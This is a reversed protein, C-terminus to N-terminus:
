RSSTKRTITTATSPSSARGTATPMTASGDEVARIGRTPKPQVCRVPLANHNEANDSPRVVNGYFQLRYGLPGIDKYRTSTWYVGETGQNCVIGWPDRRGVAPLFMTWDAPHFATDDGARMGAPIGLGADDARFMTAHAGLVGVNPTHTPAAGFTGANWSGASTIDDTAGGVPMRWGGNHKDGFYYMCPDGKAIEPNHYSPDSVSRGGSSWDSPESVPISNWDGGIAAQADALSMWESPVALIDDPELSPMVSDSGDSSIAVLSGFQFFAVYVTEDELGGFTEDAFAKIGPNSAYEKSGKLTLTNTGKIYGIVGPAALSLAGQTVNFPMEIRKAAITWAHLRSTTLSGSRPATITLTYADGVPDSLTYDIKNSSFKKKTGGVIEADGGGVNMTFDPVNTKITVIVTEGMADLFVVRQSVGLYYSGDVMVYEVESEDMDVVRATMNNVADSEYAELVTSYGKGTVASINFRYLHNRLVNMLDGDNAFDLRYYTTEGSGDYEGGVVLAMRNKHQTPPPTGMMLIDSEPVYISQTTYLNNSVTYELARAEADTTAPFKTPSAPISPKTVSAGSRNATVPVVLYEKNAKVVHVSTLSFPIAVGDADKGDWTYAPDESADYNPKDGLGVDIRAVARMLTVDPKASLDVTIPGTEGWMPITEGSAGPYMVGSIADFIAAVVTEYSQGIMSSPTAPATKDVIGRAHLIDVANALVMLNATTGDSSSPLGVSFAGGGSYGGAPSTMAGSGSTKDTVNDARHVSTLKSPTGNDFVLVHVDSVTNEDAYSLSRTAPKKFEGPTRLNLEINVNCTEDLSIARGLDNDSLCSVTFIMVAAFLLANSFPKM